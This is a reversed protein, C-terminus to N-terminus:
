SVNVQMPNSSEGSSNTIVFTHVGLQTFALNVQVSTATIASLQAGTLVTVVGDPATLTMTLNPDFDVGNFRLTQLGSGRVVAAPTVSFIVPATLTARVVLLFPSSLAAASPGVRLEHAGTQPLVVTVQFSSIQLNQIDAGSFVRETGDPQRVFLSLGTLFSGGRVTLTQSATGAVPSEPSVSTITVTNGGPATPSDGCSAVSFVLVATTLTLRFLRVVMVNHPPM